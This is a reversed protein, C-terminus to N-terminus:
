EEDFNAYIVDLIITVVFLMQTNYLIDAIDALIDIFRPSLM